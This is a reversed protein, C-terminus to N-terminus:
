DVILRLAHIHTHVCKRCNAEFYICIRNQYFINAIFDADFTIRSRYFYIVLSFQNRSMCFKNTFIQSGIVQIMVHKQEPATSLSRRHQEQLVSCEVPLEQPVSLVPFAHYHLLYKFCKAASVVSVFGTINSGTITLGTSRWWHSASLM